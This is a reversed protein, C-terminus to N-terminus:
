RVYKLSHAIMQAGSWEERMECVSLAPFLIEIRVVIKRAAIRKASLGDMASTARGFVSGFLKNKM